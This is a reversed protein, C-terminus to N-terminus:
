LQAHPHVDTLPLRVLNQNVGPGSIVQGDLWITGADVRELLNVCRLLTSKGSGSAGILCVVEHAAVSLDIGRLVQNAGFAKRLGEIRLAEAGGESGEVAGAVGGALGGGDDADAGPM